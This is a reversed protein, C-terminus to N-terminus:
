GYKPSFWSRQGAYYDLLYSRSYHRKENTTVMRDPDECQSHYMYDDPRFVPIPTITEGLPISNLIEDNIKQINNADFGMKAFTNFDPFQKRQGKQVLFIANRNGKILKGEYPNSSSDLQQSQKHISSAFHILIAILSIRTLLSWFSASM